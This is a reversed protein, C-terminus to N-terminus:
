GRDIRTADAFAMDGFFRAVRTLYDRVAKEDEYKALIKIHVRFSGPHETMGIMGVLEEGRAEADRLVRLREPDNSFFFTPTELGM